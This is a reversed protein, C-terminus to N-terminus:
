PEVRSASAGFVRSVPYDRWVDATGTAGIAVGVGIGAPIALWTPVPPDGSLDEEDPDNNLSVAILAGAALGLIGGIIMSKGSSRGSRIRLREMSELPIDQTLAPDSAEMDIAWYEIRWSLSDMAALRGTMQAERLISDREGKVRRVFDIRVKDGIKPPEGISEASFAPGAFSLALVITLGVARFTM